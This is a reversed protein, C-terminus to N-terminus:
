IPINQMHTHKAYTYTKCIPINQMYTHKAYQHKQMHTSNHM